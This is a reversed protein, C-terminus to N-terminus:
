VMPLFEGPIEGQPNVPMAFEPQCVPLSAESDDISDPAPRVIRAPQGHHKQNRAADEKATQQLERERMRRQQEALRAMTRVARVGFRAMEWDDM